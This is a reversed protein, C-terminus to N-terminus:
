QHPEEAQGQEAAHREEAEEAQKAVASEREYEALAEARQAELAAQLPTQRQGSETLAERGALRRQEQELLATDAPCQPGRVRITELREAEQQRNFTEKVNFKEEDTFGLDNVQM